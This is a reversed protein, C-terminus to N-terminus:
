VESLSVLHSMIKKELDSPYIISYEEALSPALEQYFRCLDFAAYLMADYEMSCYTTQLPSLEKVPLAQEIKFYPEGGGVYSDSFNHRLRALVVCYQRLVELQGYAFWFQKRGLAKIFHTLDHWFWDIQQRLLEIQKGRDPIHPPFVEGSLVNNKDILIIYPGSYINKFNSENGFWLDCEAQNSFILCYGHPLGFDEQFLPEGLLHVFKDREVLFEEYAKDTTIFFLDLDSYQDVKGGSSGGLFAAVIRDDALCAEIFREVIERHDSTFPLEQINM